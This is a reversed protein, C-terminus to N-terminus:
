ALMRLRFNRRIRGTASIVAPLSTSELYVQALWSFQEHTHPKIPWGLPRERYEAIRTTPEVLEAIPYMGAYEFSFDISNRQLYEIPYLQLTASARSFREGIRFPAATIQGHLLADALAGILDCGYAYDTQQVITCDPYWAAVDLVMCHGDPMLKLEVHTGCTSLELASVARRATSVVQAQHASDLSTPSIHGSPTSPQMKPTMDTIAVPVYCGEVVLGEVSVQDSLGPSAYWARADGILLEEAVFEQQQASDIDADNASGTSLPLVAVAHEPDEILENGADPVGSRPKVVLPSRFDAFTRIIDDPSRVARYRPRQFGASRLANRMALKDRAREAGATTVGRLGLLEAARATSVVYQASMTTLADAGHERTVLAIRRSIEQENSRDWSDTDVLVPTNM